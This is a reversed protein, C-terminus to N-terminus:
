QSYQTCAAKAQPDTIQDCVSQQLDKVNESQEQVQKLTQSFDTFEISTPPIFMSNDVTWNSCDLDVEKDVDVGTQQTQPKAKEEIDATVEVKIKTGKSNDDTWIYSYQDDRIMHSTMTTGDATEITFDGRMKEGSVYATGETSDSENSYDMQCMVNKGSGLLNAITGKTTAVEPTGEQESVAAGQSSQPSKKSMQTYFLVALIVLIAVVVAAIILKGSSSDKTEQPKIEQPNNQEEDM